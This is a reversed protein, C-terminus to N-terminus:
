SERRRRPPSPAGVRPAMPGWAVFALGIRRLWLDPYIFFGRSFDSYIRNGPRHSVGQGRRPGVRAGHDVEGVIQHHQDEANVWRPESVERSASSKISRQVRSRSSAPRYFGHDVAAAATFQVPIAPSIQVSRCAVLEGPEWIALGRGAPFRVVSGIESLGRTLWRHGRCVGEIETGASHLSRM